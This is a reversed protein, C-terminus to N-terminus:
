VSNRNGAFQAPAAADAAGYAHGPVADDVGHLAHPIRIGAHGGGIYARAMVATPRPSHRAKRPLHLCQARSVLCGGVMEGLHGNAAEAALLALAYRHGHDAGGDARRVHIGQLHELLVEDPVVVAADSAVVAPPVHTGLVAGAGQLLACPSEAPLVLPLVPVSGDPDAGVPPVGDAHAHTNVAVRVHRPDRLPMTLSCGKSETVGSSHTPSGSAKRHLLHNGLDHLHGHVTHLHHIGVGPVPQSAPM